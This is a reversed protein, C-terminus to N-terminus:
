HLKKPRRTAVVVAMWVAAAVVVEAEAWRVESGAPGWRGVTAAQDAALATWTVTM